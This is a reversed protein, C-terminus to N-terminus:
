LTPNCLSRVALLQRLFDKLVSFKLLVTNAQQCSESRWWRSFGAHANSFLFVYMYSNCESM